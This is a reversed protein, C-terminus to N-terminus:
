RQAAQIQVKKAKYISDTIEITHQFNNISRISALPFWISGRSFHVQQAKNTRAGLSDFEIVQAM